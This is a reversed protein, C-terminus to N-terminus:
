MGPAGNCSTELNESTAFISARYDFRCECTVCRLAERKLTTPGRPKAQGVRCIVSSAFKSTVYMYRCGLFGGHAFVKCRMLRFVVGVGSGDLCGQGRDAGAIVRQASQSRGGGDHLAVDAANPPRQGVARGIQAGGQRQPDGEGGLLVLVSRTDQKGSLKQEVAGPEGKAGLM